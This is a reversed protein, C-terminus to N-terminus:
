HLEDSTNEDKENKRYGWIYWGGLVKVKPTTIM